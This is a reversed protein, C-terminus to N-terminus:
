SMMRVLDPAIMIGVRGIRTLTVIFDNSLTIRLPEPLMVTASNFPSEKLTASSPEPIILALPVTSWTFMEKSPEPLILQSSRFALAADTLSVPEPLILTYALLLRSAFRLPEPLM